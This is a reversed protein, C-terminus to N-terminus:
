PRARAERAPPIRKPVPVPQETTGDLVLTGNELRWSSLRGTFSQGLASMELAGPRAILGPVLRYTIGGATISEITIGAALFSLKGVRVPESYRLRKVAFGLSTADEASLTVAPFEPDFALRMPQGNVQAQFIFRGDPGRAVRAEPKEPAEPKDPKEAKAEEPPKPAFIDTTAAMGPAAMGPAAMGPSAAVPAPSPPPVFFSDLNWIAGVAVATVLMGKLFLRPLDVGERARTAREEADHSALTRAARGKTGGGRERHCAALVAADRLDARILRLHALLSVAGAGLGALPAFLLTGYPGTFGAAPALGSLVALAAGSLTWAASALFAFRALGKERRLLRDLGLIAALWLASVAVPLAAFLVQHLSFGRRTGGYTLFLVEPRDAPLVDPSLLLSALWISVPFFLVTELM